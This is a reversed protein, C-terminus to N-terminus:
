NSDKNAEASGFDAEAKEWADSFATYADSVGKKIDEWADASSNKMGGYWEALQTRQKRLSKLATRYKKRAAANMNDWNNDVRTELADIRSDLKDLAAKTKKVAEDRQDVSYAKLAQIAEQTEQKVENATTKDTSSQTCSISSIGFMVIVSFLSASQFMKQLKM